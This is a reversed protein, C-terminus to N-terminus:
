SDSMTKSADRTSTIPLHKIETWEKLIKFYYIKAFGKIDVRLKMDDNQFLLLVRNDHIISSGFEFVMNLFNKNASNWELISKPLFSVMSIFFGELSDVIM